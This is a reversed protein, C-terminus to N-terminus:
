EGDQQSTTLATQISPPAEADPVPVLQYIRTNQTTYGFDEILSAVLEAAQQLTGYTHPEETPLIPYFTEQKSWPLPEDVKVVIFAPPNSTLSESM